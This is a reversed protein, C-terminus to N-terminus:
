EVIVKLKMKPHFACRIEVAGPTNFVVSSSEGPGQTKLNFESGKTSSFVNHTVEDENKFVVTEGKKIKMEEQSFAKDKQLVAHEGGAIVVVAVVLLLSSLILLTRFM